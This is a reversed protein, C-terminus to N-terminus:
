QDALEDLRATYDQDTIRLWETTNDLWWHGNHRAFSHVIRSLHQAKGQTLLRTM